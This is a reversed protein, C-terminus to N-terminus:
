VSSKVLCRRGKSGQFTDHDTVSITDLGKHKALLVLEDVATSGDSFKSHCHLDASM